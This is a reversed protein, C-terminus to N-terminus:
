AAPVAHLRCLDPQDARAGDHHRRCQAHESQGRAGDQFAAARLARCQAASGVAGGLDADTGRCPRGAALRPVPRARDQHRLRGPPLRLRAVPAAARVATRRRGAPGLVNGGPGRRDRGAGGSLGPHHRLLRPQHRRQRPHLIEVGGRDGGATRYIGVMMVTTLTAVEVGVWMLGINNSLLALNMSWM